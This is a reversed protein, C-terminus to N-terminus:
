AHGGSRTRGRRALLQDLECALAQARDGDSYLAALIGVSRPLDHIRLPVPDWHFGSERECIQGCRGHGGGLHRGGTLAIAMGILRRRLARTGEELPRRGVEEAAVQWRTYRRRVGDLEPEVTEGDDLQLAHCPVQPREEVPPGRVTGVSSRR